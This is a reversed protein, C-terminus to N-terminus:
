PKLIFKVNVQTAVKIKEFEIKPLEVGAQKRNGYGMVVVEQLDGIFQSGMSNVDQDLIHIAAGVTQNLPRTLAIARAKANEVAESRILTRMRELDSYAVRDIGTNSIGVTELEIFVRSAVVADSVKLIYKKSKMVDKSRLLYVKFNSAMDTTTLNKEVDIGLAKLANYMKLELEELSTRDKTDRESITIRIYIEDPTLLTDATGAVEIYPQDLFNKTQSQGIFFTVLLLATLNLKKM